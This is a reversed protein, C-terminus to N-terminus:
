DAFCRLHPAYSGFLIVGSGTYFDGFAFFFFFLLDGFFFDGFGEGLFGLVFLDLLLGVM